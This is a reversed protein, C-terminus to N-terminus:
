SIKPKGKSRNKSPTAAPAPPKQSPAAAQQSTTKQSKSAATPGPDSSPLDASYFSPDVHRQESSMASAKPDKISSVRDMPISIYGTDGKLVVETATVELLVGRYTLGSARVEVKKRMLKDLVPRMDTAATSFCKHSRNQQHDQWKLARLFFTIM